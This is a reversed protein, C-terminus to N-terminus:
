ALRLPTLRAPGPGTSAIGKATLYNPVEALHLKADWLFVCYLYNCYNSSQPFCRCLGAEYQMYEEALPKQHCVAADVQVLATAKWRQLPVDVSHRVALSEMPTVNVFSNPVYSRISHFLFGRQDATLPLLPPTQAVSSQISRASSSRRSTAHHFQM